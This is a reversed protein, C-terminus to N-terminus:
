QENKIENLNKESSKKENVNKDKVTRGSGWVYGYKFVPLFLRSLM